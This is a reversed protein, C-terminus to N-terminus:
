RSPSSSASSRGRASASYAAGPEAFPVAAVASGTDHTAPAIVAHATSGRRGAVDDALPGLVTGPPVVDPLLRAPVDLRELLDDGM